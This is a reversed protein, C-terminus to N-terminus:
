TDIELQSPKAFKSIINLKSPQVWLSSLLSVVFKLCLKLVRVWNILFSNIISSWSKKCHSNRVQVIAFGVSAYRTYQLIKKRGAEGERKQLDQLKPYVQALLQFVIQANIFPVIGLSCLGLRGIGGGSFSDLTSLLSNQDLNGLFAERNVGGLPIYVGLRSLALFGLLKLFKGPLPGKFFDGFDISSDEIAATLWHRFVLTLWRIPLICSCVYDLNMSDFHLIFGAVGRSSNSKEKETSSSSEFTQPFLSVLNKWTSSTDTNIGLPDFNALDCSCVTQFLIHPLFVWNIKIVFVSLKRRQEELM